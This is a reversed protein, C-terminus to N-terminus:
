IPCLVSIRQSSEPIFFLHPILNDLQPQRKGKTMGLTSCQVSSTHKRELYEVFYAAGLLQFTCASALLFLELIGIAVELM